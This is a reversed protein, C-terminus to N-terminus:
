ILERGEEVRDDPYLSCIQKLFAETMLEYEIITANMQKVFAFVDIIEAYRGIKLLRQAFM